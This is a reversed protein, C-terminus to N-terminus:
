LEGHGVEEERKITMKPVVEVSNKVIKWFEDDGRWKKGHNVCRSIDLALKYDDTCCVIEKSEYDYVVYSNSSEM